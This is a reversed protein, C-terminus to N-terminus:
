YFFRKKYKMELIINISEKLFAVTLDIQKNFDEESRNLIEYKEEIREISRGYYLHIFIIYLFFGIILGMILNQQRDFKITLINYQEILKRNEDLLAQIEKEAM